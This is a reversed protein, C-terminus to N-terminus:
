LGGPIQSRTSAKVSKKHFEYKDWGKVKLWHPWYKECAHVLVEKMAVTRLEEDGGDNGGPEIALM